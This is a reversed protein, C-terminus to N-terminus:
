AWQQVKLHQLKTFPV